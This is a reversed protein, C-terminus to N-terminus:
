AASGRKAIRCTEACGHNSLPVGLRRKFEHPETGDTGMLCITHVLDPINGRCPVLLAPTPSLRTDSLNTNATSNHINRSLRPNPAM